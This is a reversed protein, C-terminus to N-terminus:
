ASVIRIAHTDDLEGAAESQSGGRANGSSIQSLREALCPVAFVRFGQPDM